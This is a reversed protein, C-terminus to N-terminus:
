LTVHTDHCWCNSWKTLLEHLCVVLFIDFYLIEPGQSPFRITVTAETFRNGHRSTTMNEAQIKCNSVDTRETIPIVYDCNTDYLILSLNILSIYIMSHSIFNLDYIDSNRAESFMVVGVEVGVGGWGVGVGVGAGGGGGGGGEVFRSEIFTVFNNGLFYRNIPMLNASLLNPANRHSVLLSFLYLRCRIQSWLQRGHSVKSLMKVSLQM